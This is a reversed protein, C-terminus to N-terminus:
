SREAQARPRTFRIRALDGARCQQEGVALYKGDWQVMGPYYIMGGKLTINKLTKKGKPLEVLPITDADDTGDAYLNGKPDYGCFYFDGIQSDTYVKASGKAHTFISVSGGGASVYSYNTVALNGTTPDVSCGFNFLICSLTAIPTTGGHKYEVLSASRQECGM